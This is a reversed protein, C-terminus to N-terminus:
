EVEIQFRGITKPVQPAVTAPSGLGSYDRTVMRERAKILEDNVSKVRMNAAAKTEELLSMMDKISLNKDHIKAWREQAGVSLEAISATSGSALKGIENEIETLYMDYKAQLASGAIRGRIARLPINLLRADSTELEKSLQGVKDVQQNLNSVFSGMSSVQKELFGLSGQIAKTDSQKRLISLAAETPTRKDGTDVGLEQMAMSKALRMRLKDAAAGRGLPLSKGTLAQTAALTEVEDDSLEPVEGKMEVAKVKEELTREKLGITQQFQEAQNNIRQQGQALRGQNVALNGQATQANMQATGANAWGIQNREAGLAIRQDGQAVQQEKIKLDLAEKMKMSINQLNARLGEEGLQTHTAIHEQKKAEIEAPSKGILAGMEEIGRLVMPLVLGPPASAAIGAYRQGLEIEKLGVEMKTKDVKAETLANGGQLKAAQAYIKMPNYQLDQEAKRIALDNMRIKQIQGIGQQFSEVPTFSAAVQAPANTNLLNWNLEAM